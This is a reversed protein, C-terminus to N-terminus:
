VHARGIEEPAIDEGFLKAELTSEHRRVTAYFVDKKVNAVYVASITNIMDRYAGFMSEFAMRRVRRDPNQMFGSYRAHSMEVKEGDVTVPKFRIDVNDILSFIDSFSGSFNGVSALLREEAESLVRSKNRVLEKISYRFPEFREEMAMTELTEDSLKSIEPVIYASMESMRVSLMEVRQRMGQYLAVSEDEHVKMSAFVYLREVMLGLEDNLMMCEYVSDSDVLKGKHETIEPARRETEGYLEEWAEESEIIDYLNWKYTDDIESRKLVKAM